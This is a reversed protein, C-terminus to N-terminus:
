DYMEQKKSKCDELINLYNKYREESIKREELAKKVACKPENVHLCNNFKCENVLGRMERFYHSVENPEIDLMGFEKIGPTDIVFGGFPLETMEAFTTVHKGKQHYESIDGTRLNAQPHIANILTSKGVGSHGTILTVKNKVLGHITKVDTPNKASIRFFPLYTLIPLNLLFTKTGPNANLCRNFDQAIECLVTAIFM